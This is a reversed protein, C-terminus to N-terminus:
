RRAEELDVKIFLLFFLEVDAFSLLFITDPFTQPQALEKRGPYWRVVYQIM